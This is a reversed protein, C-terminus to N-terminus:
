RHATIPRVKHETGFDELLQQYRSRLEVYECGLSVYLSLIQDLQSRLSAIDEHLTRNARAKQALKQSMSTSRGTAAGHEEIMACLEPYRKKSLTSRQYGAESAVLSLTLRASAPVVKPHGGVIRLYAELLKIATEHNAWHPRPLTSM